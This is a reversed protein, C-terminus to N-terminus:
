SDVSVEKRWAGLIFGSITLLVMDFGGTIWVLEYPAQAFMDSTMRALFDFSFVILLGIGAGRLGSRVNLKTFLWALVYLPVISAIINTIWAGIGPSNAEYTAMDLGVMSMWPELFMMPGYWLFGLAFSLIFCVVIAFHYEEFYHEHNM